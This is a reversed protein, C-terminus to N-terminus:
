SIDAYNKESLWKTKFFIIFLIGYMVSNTGETKMIMLKSYKFLSLKATISYRYFFLSMLITTLEQKLCDHLNFNDTETNGEDLKAWWVKTKEKKQKKGDNLKIKIQMRIQGPVQKGGKRPEEHVQQLVSPCYSLGIVRRAQAWCQKGQLPLNFNMSLSLNRSLGPTSLQSLAPKCPFPAPQTPAALFPNNAETHKQM